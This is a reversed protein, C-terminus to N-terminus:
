TVLFSTKAIKIPNHQYHVPSAPCALHSGLFGAAGTILNRPLSAPMFFGGTRGSPSPHHRDPDADGAPGAPTRREYRVVLLGVSVAADAAM